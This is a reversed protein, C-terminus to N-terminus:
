AHKKGSQIIHVFAGTAGLGMIIELTLAPSWHGLYMQITAVATDIGLSLAIALTWEMVPERLKFFRVLMMGPCVALFWLLILPRGALDPLVFNALGAALASLLTIVPWILRM